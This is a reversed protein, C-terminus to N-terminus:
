YFCREQILVNEEYLESIIKFTVVREGTVSPGRGGTVVDLGRGGDPLAPRALKHLVTAIKEVFFENLKATCLNVTCFVM